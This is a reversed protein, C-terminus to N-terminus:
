PTAFLRVRSLSHISSLNSLSQLKSNERIYYKQSMKGLVLTALSSLICRKYHLEDSPFSQLIVIIIVINAINALM